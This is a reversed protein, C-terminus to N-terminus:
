ASRCVPCGPRRRIAVSRTTGSLGDYVWLRDRLGSNLGLLLKLAETAQMTGVTGAVPALIGQGACSQFNEDDDSYLCRYCPGAAPEPFVAVQGEFRIAAGSVLPKRMAVCAENILLRARFNDTCDLVLDCDRAAAKLAALDLQDNLTTMRVSPNAERLRAATAETKFSGVDGARFLLQRPLNSVDVRDFDNVLLHGIGSNALYLSAVSGLGGLGVILASSRRLREQGGAGFQPLALHRAYRLSDSM